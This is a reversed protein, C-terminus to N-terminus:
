TDAAEAAEDEDLYGLAAVKGAKLMINLTSIENIAADYHKGDIIEQCAHDIANAKTKDLHGLKNAARDYKLM